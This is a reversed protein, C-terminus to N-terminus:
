QLALDVVGQTVQWLRPLDQGNRVRRVARTDSCDGIISSQNFVRFDFLFFNDVNLIFASTEHVNRHTADSSFRARRLENVHGSIPPYPTNNVFVMDIILM